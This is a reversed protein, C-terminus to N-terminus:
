HRISSICCDYVTCDLLKLVLNKFRLSMLFVCAKKKFEFNAGNAYICVKACNYLKQFATLFEEKKSKLEDTLPKKSRLLV